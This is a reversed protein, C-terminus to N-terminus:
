RSLAPIRLSRLPPAPAFLPELESALLPSPAPPLSQIYDLLRDQTLVPVTPHSLELRIGPRFVAVAQVPVSLDCDVLFHSVAKRNRKLQRSVSSRLPRRSGDPDAVFWSDGHCGVCGTYSKVEIVLIGAPGLVLLDTDGQRAGPVVFNSVVTYSDPLARLTSLAAAEGVVGRQYRNYTRLARVGSQIGGLSLFAAAAPGYGVFDGAAAWLLLGGGVGAVALTGEIRMVQDAYRQHRILKMSRNNAPQLAPELPFELASRGVGELFPDPARQDIHISDCKRLRPQWVRRILVGHILGQAKRGQTEM